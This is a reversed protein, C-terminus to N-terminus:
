QRAAYRITYVADLIDMDLRNRDIRSAEFRDRFRYEDISFNCERDVAKVYSIVGPPNLKNPARLTVERNVCQGQPTYDERVEGEYYM